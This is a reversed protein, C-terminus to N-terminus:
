TIYFIYVRFCLGSHMTKLISVKEHLSSLLLSQCGSSLRTVRFPFGRPYHWSLCRRNLCAPTMFPHMSSLLDLTFVYANPHRNRCSDTGTPARRGPALVAMSLCHTLNDRYSIALHAEDSCGNWTQVFFAATKEHDVDTPILQLQTISPPDRVHHSGKNSISRLVHHLCDLSQTRVPIPPSPSSESEEKYYVM